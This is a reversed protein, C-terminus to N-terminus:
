GGTVTTSVNLTEKVSSKNFKASILYYQTIPMPCHANPLPCQAIPFPTLFNNSIWFGDQFAKIPPFRREFKECFGFDDCGILSKPKKQCNPM